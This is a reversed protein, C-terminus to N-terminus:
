GFHIRGRGGKRGKERRRGKRRRREKGKRKRKRRERKKKRWRRLMYDGTGKGWSVRQNSHTSLKIDSTVGKTVTGKGLGNM